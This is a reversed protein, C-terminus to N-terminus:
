KPPPLNAASALKGEPTKPGTSLGGHLRCRGNNYIQKGQCPRGKQRGWAGCTMGECEPPYEPFAPLVPAPLWVGHDVFYDARRKAGTLMLERRLAEVRHYEKWFEQHQRRQEKPEIEVTM